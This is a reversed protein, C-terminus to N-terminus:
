AYWALEFIFIHPSHKFLKEAHSLSDMDFGFLIIYSDHQHHASCCAALSLKIFHFFLADVGSHM